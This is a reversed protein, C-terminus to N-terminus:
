LFFYYYFLYYSYYDFYHDRETKAMLHRIGNIYVLVRDVNSHVTRFRLTVESNKDPECPSRFQETADHFLGRSMLVPRSNYLYLYTREYDSMTELNRLLEM